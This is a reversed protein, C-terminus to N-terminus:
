NGNLDKLATARFNEADNKFKAMVELTKNLCDERSLCFKFQRYLYELGGRMYSNLLEFNDYHFARNIREKSTLHSSCDILMTM